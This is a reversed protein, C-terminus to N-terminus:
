TSMKLHLNKFEVAHKHYETLLFPDPAKFSLVGCISRTIPISGVRGAQFAPIRAMSSCGCAVNTIIDHRFEM